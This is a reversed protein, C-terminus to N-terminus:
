NLKECMLKVDSVRLRKAKRKEDEVSRLSAMERDFADRKAKWKARKTNGYTRYRMCCPPCMKYEYLALIKMYTYSLM